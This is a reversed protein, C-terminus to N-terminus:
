HFIYKKNETDLIYDYNKFDREEPLRKYLHIPCNIDLKEILYNISTGVTHINSARELVMSWGVLSFDKIQRMEINKLGNNIRIPSKGSFNTRFNRNIFNFPEGTPNLYEFLEQEKDPFREFTFNRWRQWGEMGCYLKLERDWYLYKAKMCDTYPVKLIDNAFRFPIVKWSEQTFNFDWVNRNNFDTIFSENMDVIEIGPFHKGIEVYHSEVPIIVRNGKAVEEQAIQMIFLIDGLGRFQNFIYNMNDETQHDNTDM